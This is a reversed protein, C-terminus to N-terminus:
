VEPMRRAAFILSSISERMDAPMERTKEILQLRVNLLECFLQVIDCAAIM